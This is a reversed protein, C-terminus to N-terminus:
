VPNQSRRRWNIGGAIFMGALLLAWTPPEPIDVQGQIIDNACTMAWSLAFQNGLLGNDIIDFTVANPGITWQESTNAVPNSKGPDFQVPQNARFYYGPNGSNPATTTNGHVNSMIITGDLTQYLGGSGTPPGPGPAALITAAYTWDDTRYTDTTYHPGIGDPTWANPGPSIFMVGYGTGDAARTGQKEAYSMKVTIELTRGGNIRRITASSIGFTNPDGIVDTPYHWTDLGGYYTDQLIVSAHAPM